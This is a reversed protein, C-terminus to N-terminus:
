GNRGGGASETARKLFHYIEEGLKQTALPQARSLLGEAEAVRARLAEAEGALRCRMDHERQRDSRTQHLEARLAALEAHAERALRGWYYSKGTIDPIADELREVIDTM